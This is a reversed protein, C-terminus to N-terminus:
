RQNGGGRIQPSDCHALEMQYIRNNKSIVELKIDNKYEEKSSVEDLLSILVEISSVYTDPNTLEELLQTYTQHLLISEQHEAVEDALSCKREKLSQRTAEVFDEVLNIQPVAERGFQLYGDYIVKNRALTQLYDEDLSLAHSLYTITAEDLNYLNFPNEQITDIIDQLRKAEEIKGERVEKEFKLRELKETLKELLSDM